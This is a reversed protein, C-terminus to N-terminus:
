KDPKEEAKKIDQQEQNSIDPTTDNNIENELDEQKKKAKMSATLLAAYLKVSPHSELGPTLCIMDNKESKKLKIGFLEPYEGIHSDPPGNPDQKIGIEKYYEEIIQTRFRTPDLYKEDAKKMRDKANKITQLTSTPLSFISDKKKSRKKPKPESSM